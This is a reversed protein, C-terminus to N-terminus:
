RETNSSQKKGCVAYFAVAAAAGVNLSDMGNSMPIRVTYDCQEIIESSLGDGEAGFVLALKPEGALQPSDLGISDDKLAMAATKFGAEKLEHFYGKKRDFDLRTWPVKFVAGMSVRAARRHLADCCTPDLLVANAGLAAASRFISGVNTPDVIGVLVAARRCGELVSAPSPLARRKMACLVGRSLDFGTLGRLMDTDGAFVPVDGCRELIAAASGTVHRKEMLFSVPEYGADLAASIVNPSEAIFLGALPGQTGRTGAGKLDYYVETGPQRAENLEIINPM